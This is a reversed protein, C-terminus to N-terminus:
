AADVGALGAVVEERGDSAHGFSDAARRAWRGMRRLERKGQSVAHEPPVLISVGKEEFGAPVDGLRVRLVRPSEPTRARIAWILDSRDGRVARVTLSWISENGCPRYGHVPVSNSGAVYARSQPESTALKTLGFAALALIALGSCALAAVLTRRRTTAMACARGGSLGLSERTAISRVISGTCSYPGRHDQGPHGPRRHRSEHRRQPNSGLYSSRTAGLGRSLRGNGGSLRPAWGAGSPCPRSM